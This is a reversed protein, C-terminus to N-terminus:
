FVACRAQMMPTLLAATFSTLDIRRVTADHV